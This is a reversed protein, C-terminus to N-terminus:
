SENEKFIFLYNRFLYDTSFISIDHKEYVHQITVVTNKITEYCVTDLRFCTSKLVINNIKMLKIMSLKM